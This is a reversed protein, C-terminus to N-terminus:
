ATKPTEGSTNGRKEGKLEWDDGKWWKGLSWRWLCSLILDSSCESLERSVNMRIFLRYLDLFKCIMTERFNFSGIANQTVGFQSFSIIEIADFYKIRDRSEQWWNDNEHTRPLQLWRFHHQLILEPRRRIDRINSEMMRMKWISM